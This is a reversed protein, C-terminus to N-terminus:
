FTPVAHNRALVRFGQHRPTGRARPAGAPSRAAAPQMHMHTTQQTFLFKCAMHMYQESHLYSFAERFICKRTPSLRLGCFARMPM